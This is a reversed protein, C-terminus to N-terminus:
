SDCPKHFVVFFFDVGTNTGCKLNISRMRESNKLIVPPFFVCVGLLVEAKSERLKECSKKVKITNFM